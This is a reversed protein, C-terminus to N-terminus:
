ETGFKQEAPEGPSRDAETIEREAMLRQGEAFVRHLEDCSIELWKLDADSITALETDTIEIDGGDHSINITHKM